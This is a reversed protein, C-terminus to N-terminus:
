KSPQEQALARWGIDTRLQMGDFAIERCAAYARDRAIKLNVGVASVGLVRGGSTVVQNGARRTGAHYVRVGVHSAARELGTIVGGLQPASPYGPAALVVCLGHLANISVADVALAGSAASRMLEFLDGDILGMLVQTEPDGFRTNIELLVPEGSPSVM